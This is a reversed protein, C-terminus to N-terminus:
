ELGKTQGNQDTQASFGHDILNQFTRGLIRQVASRGQMGNGQQFPALMILAWSTFSAM